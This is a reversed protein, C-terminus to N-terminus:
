CFLKKAVIMLFLPFEKRAKNEMNKMKGTSKKDSILEEMQEIMLQSEAIWNIYTSIPHHFSFTTTSSKKKGPHTYIPIKLSSMYVNMKRSQIKQQTDIDWSSQRPIRFAPHNMVIILKGNEKLHSAANQIVEKGHEMNQLALVIFAHTFDKEKLPFPKSVDANMFVHQENKRIRKAQLILDKSLDLGVYRVNKPLARELVGQGCGIDLIKAKQYTDLSLLKPLIVHKHYYHGEKGVCSGYWKSSDEFSTHSM